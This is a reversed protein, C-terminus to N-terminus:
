WIIARKEPALYMKDGEKVNFAEYFRPINVVGGNTRYEGPSHVDSTLRNLLAKDTINNRWVQGYSIFFRQLPTFGDIAEDPSNIKDGMRNELATLAISLGGFDAMNEGLTMEGKIHVSDLMVYSSFQDILTQAQEEFRTADEKTWWDSKNGKYDYKRGQDDFGHTMEHGIVVGIGGFNIADDENLNFYPPQLIGAPFVIQNTNPSYYANVMQPPMHWETKDVPKNLDKMSDEYGFKMLAKSNAYYDDATITLSSYDKWKDPYGIMDQIADLKKHAEAKTKDSMWTVKDIHQAYAKKLDKVLSIMKAKAEPSFHKEVYLKGVAEGLSGSVKDQVRKWRPRPSQQGNLTRGWFDFQLAYSDDDLMGLVDNTYHWTLYTKWDEISTETYLKNLGEFFSPTYCNLNEPNKGIKEWLSNWDINPTLKAWEEVTYKNTTQDADRLKEIPWQIEAFKTELDLCTQAVAKATAEDKGIHIFVKEIHAKYKDRIEAYQENDELYYDRDPLLTGGQYTHMMNMDSNDPDSSIFIGYMYSMGNIYKENLYAQMSALDTIGDIAKLDELLPKIGIENRKTSDMGTNYLDRIKQENSGAELTEDNVIEAFIAKINERNQEALENFASWRSESEPVPNNKLWTGNVYRYFDDQPKYNVTDMNAPDFSKVIVKEETVPTDAKECGGLTLILAAAGAASLKTLKKLM